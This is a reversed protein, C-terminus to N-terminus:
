LHGNKAKRLSNVMHSLRKVRVWKSSHKLSQFHLSKIKFNLGIFPTKMVLFLVRGLAGCLSNCQHCFIRNYSGWPDWIGETWHFQNSPLTINWTIFCTQFMIEKTATYKRWGKLHMKRPYIKKWYQFQWNCDLAQWLQFIRPPKFNELVKSLSMQVSFPVM